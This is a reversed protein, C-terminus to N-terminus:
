HIWNDAFLLNNFYVHRPIYAHMYTHIYAHIYTFSNGYTNAALDTTNSITAPDLKDHDGHGLRQHPHQVSDSFECHTRYHLTLRYYTLTVTGDTSHVANASAIEELQHGSSPFFSNYEFVYM